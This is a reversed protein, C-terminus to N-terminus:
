HSTGVTWGAAGPDVAAGPAGGAAFGAAALAGADGGALAAVAGADAGATSATRASVASRVTVTSLPTTRATNEFRPAM